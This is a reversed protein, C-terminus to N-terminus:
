AAAEIAPPLAELPPVPVTPLGLLLRLENEFEEDGAHAYLIGPDDELMKIFPEVLEPDFQTGACRRLEEAAAAHSKPDRYIARATMVDYADAIGIMRSCLPIEEGSLKRPYGTGDFYEHHCRIIEAVEQFGDIQRTIEAGQDPHTRLIVWEADTPKRPAQLISEPVAMKGIDHLVAARHYTAWERDPVELYQAFKRVYRGVAASHGATLEDRMALIRLTHVVQQLNSLALRENASGLEENADRLKLNKLTQWSFLLLGAGAAAFGPVGVEFYVVAAAGTLFLSAAESSLIPVLLGEFQERVGVGKFVKVDYAHFSFNLGTAVLYAAIVAVATATTGEEMAALVLHAALGAAFCFAAYWAINAYLMILPPRNEDNLRTAASFTMAAVGAVVTPAPGLIVAALVLCVMAGSLWLNETEIATADALIAGATLLLLTTWDWTNFGHLAFSAVVSTFLVWTLLLPM